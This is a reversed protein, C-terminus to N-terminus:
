IPVWYNFSRRSVSEPLLGLALLEDQYRELGEIASPDLQYRMTETLYRTASEPTWGERSSAETICEQWPAQELSQNLISELQPDFPAHGIWVAWVFPLGTWNSWEGGLDWLYTGPIEATMGIDGILLCADHEALMAEPNPSLTNFRIKALDLGALRSLLIKALNNSTLSSADLAVSQISEFPVKSFLRVSESVGYTGICVGKAHTRSPDALLAYSSAMVAQCRGSDLLAPLQSPVAFEVEVGLSPLASVLPLANVYPM